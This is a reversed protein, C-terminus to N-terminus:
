SAVESGLQALWHNVRLPIWTDLVPWPVLLEPGISFSRTFEMTPTFAQARLWGAALADNAPTKAIQRAYEEKVLVGGRGARCSTEAFVMDRYLEFWYPTPSFAHKGPQAYVIPHTGDCPITRGERLMSAYAGHSSAEVWVLEGASDLYVWVHELEYLHGIDWDWWIAYEVATAWAPRWDRAIRRLFSPSQEEGHFVSYGAVLPFFPEAADFCIVPAYRAALQWAEEKGRYTPPQSGDVQVSLAAILELLEQATSVTYRPIEGGRVPIARRRDNAHFFVSRLGLRNAGLIDRELNNGVMLVGPFNAQSVGLADLADLFIGEAPKEIGVNESISLHQFLDLLGHQGLVNLPTRPRADAVLALRHGQARLAHLAGAMGPLLDASQTTGGADKIETGEDMITDGLDFFIALTNKAM